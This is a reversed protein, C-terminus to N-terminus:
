NKIHEAHKSGSTENEPLRDYTFTHHLTNDM